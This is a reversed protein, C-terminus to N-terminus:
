SARRRPHHVARLHVNLLAQTQFAEGCRECIVAHVIDVKPVDELDKSSYTSDLDPPEPYLVEGINSSGGPWDENVGETGGPNAEWPM